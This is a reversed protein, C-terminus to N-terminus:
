GDERDRKRFLWPSAWLVLCAFALLAAVPRSVFDLLTTSKTLSQVFTEELRGGLIIGLVVPGLPVARAELFLGLLGMALMVWVDFYSGRIAFSGVFCFLLIVPLLIRRPVRVLQTGLKVALLGM